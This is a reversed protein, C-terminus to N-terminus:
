LLRDGHVFTQAKGDTLAATGDAGTSNGLDEFLQSGSLSPSSEHGFTGLLTYTNPELSVVVLDYVLRGFLDHLRDQAGLSLHAATGRGVSILRKM